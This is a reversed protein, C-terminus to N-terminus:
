KKRKSSQVHEILREYRDRALKIVDNTAYGIKCTTLAPKSRDMRKPIIFLDDRFPIRDIGSVKFRTPKTLGMENFGPTSQNVEFDLWPRPGDTTGTGPVILLEVPDMQDYVKLVLVPHPVPGPVIPANLDRPKYPALCWLVDGPSPKYVEQTPDPSQSLASQDLSM